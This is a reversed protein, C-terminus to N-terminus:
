EYKLTAVDPREFYEGTKPSSPIWGIEQGNKKKFYKAIIQSDRVFVAICYNNVTDLGKWTDINTFDM